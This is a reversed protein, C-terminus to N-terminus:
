FILKTVKSPDLRHLRIAQEFESLNDFLRENITMKFDDRVMKEASGMDIITLAKNLRCAETWLDLLRVLVLDHLRELVRDEKTLWTCFSKLSERSALETPRKAEPIANTDGMHFFNKLFFTTSISSCAFLIAGRETEDKFRQLAEGNKRCFSLIMVLSMFGGGRFDTRPDEGQFGLTGWAKTKLTAPDAPPEAQQVFEDYLAKLKTEHKAITKDYYVKMKTELRGFADCEDQTLECGDVPMSMCPCMMQKCGKKRNKIHSVPEAFRTISAFDDQHHGLLAVEDDDRNRTNRSM